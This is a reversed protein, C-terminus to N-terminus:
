TPWTREQLFLLAWASLRVLGAPARIGFSGFGGAGDSRFSPAADPDGGRDRRRRSKDDGGPRV